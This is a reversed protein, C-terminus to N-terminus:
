PTEEIRVVLWRGDKKEIYWEADAICGNLQNGLSDERRITYRVWLVGKRFNHYVGYREVDAQVRTVKTGCHEDYRYRQLEGYNIYHKDNLTAIDVFDTIVSDTDRYMLYVFLSLAIILVVLLIVMKKKCRMKNLM